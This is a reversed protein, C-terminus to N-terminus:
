TGLAAELDGVTTWRVAGDPPSVTPDVLSRLLALLTAYIGANTTMLSLANYPKENDV